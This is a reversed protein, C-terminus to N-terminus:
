VNVYVYVSLFFCLYLIGGPRSLSPVDGLTSHCLIPRALSLCSSLSLFLYLSLPPPRLFAPLAVVFRRKRANAATSSGRSIEGIVGYEAAM